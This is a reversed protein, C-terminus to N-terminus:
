DLEGANIYKEINYINTSFDLLELKKLSNNTDTLVM